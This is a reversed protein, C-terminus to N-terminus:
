RSYREHMDLSLAQLHGVHFILIGCSIYLCRWRKNCKSCQSDYNKAFVVLWLGGSGVYNYFFSLRQGNTRLEPSAKPVLDTSDVTVDKM